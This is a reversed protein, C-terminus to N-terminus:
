GVRHRGARPQRDGDVVEAERVRGKETASVAVGRKALYRICSAGTKGLGVVVSRMM